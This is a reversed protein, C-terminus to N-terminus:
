NNISIFSKLSCMSSNPYDNEFISRLIMAQKHVREDNMLEDIGQVIDDKKVMERPGDDSRLIMHGM